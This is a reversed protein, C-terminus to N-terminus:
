SGRLKNKTDRAEEDIHDEVVKSDNIEQDIDKEKIVVADPHEKKIEEAKEDSLPFNQNTDTSM